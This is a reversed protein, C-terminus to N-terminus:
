SPVGVADTIKSGDKEGSHRACHACCFLRGSVEVGHGAIKCGCHECPPALRHMACEFSDFTHREGESTIVEFTRWYDNGCVECTAM